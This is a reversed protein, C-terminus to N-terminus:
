KNERTDPILAFSLEGMACLKGGASLKAECVYINLKHYTLKAEIEATDGPHLLNKFRVNNIATYLTLKGALDDKMLLACSQAMIECQIVGPVIPENPFHGKLFFEEGTVHYKAHAVHNEDITMEDVLLMPERHPLIQKIEERNM